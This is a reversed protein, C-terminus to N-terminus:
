PSIKKTSNSTNDKPWQVQFLMYQMALLLKVLEKLALTWSPEKVIVIFNGNIEKSNLLQLYVM